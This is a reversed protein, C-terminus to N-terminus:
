QFLASCQAKFKLEAGACAADCANDYTILRHNLKACVPEYTGCAGCVAKESSAEPVSIVNGTPSIADAGGFNYASFLGVISVFFVIGVIAYIAQEMM